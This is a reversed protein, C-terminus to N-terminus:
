EPRKPAHRLVGEDMDLHWDGDNLDVGTLESVSAQFAMELAKVLFKHQDLLALQGRLATLVAEELHVDQDHSPLPKLKGKNKHTAM